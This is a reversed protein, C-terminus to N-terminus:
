YEEFSRANVLLGDAMMKASFRWISLLALRLTVGVAKDVLQMVLTIKLAQVQDM